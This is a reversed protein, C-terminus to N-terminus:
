SKPNNLSPSAEVVKPHEKALLPYSTETPPVLAQNQNNNHVQLWPKQSLALNM